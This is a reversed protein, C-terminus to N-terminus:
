KKKVVPDKFRLDVYNVQDASIGSDSLLFGLTSIKKNIDFRELVIEITDLYLRIQSLNTLDISHVSFKKLADNAQVAKVIALGVLVRQSALPRGARVVSVDTIGMLYPLKGKASLDTGIMIGFEDVFVEQHNLSIVAFPDRKQAMILIQNPFRRVIRLRDVAPYEARVRKEVAKLDVQFINQGYLRDLSYSEIFEVAPVKVVEVINFIKAQHFFTGIRNYVLYLSVICFVFIVFGKWFGKVQENDKKRRVMVGKERISM